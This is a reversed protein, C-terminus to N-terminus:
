MGPGGESIVARRNRPERVGDATPVALETKGVGKATIEDASVGDAILEKRVTDARRESLAQNFEASGVTDTHGTVTIHSVQGQKAAAAAQRVVSRAEPKLTSSNFDFYATFERMPPPAAAPPPATTGVSPPFNAPVLPGGAQGGTNLTSQAAGPQAARSEPTPGPSPQALQNGCGATALALLAIASLTLSYRMTTAGM